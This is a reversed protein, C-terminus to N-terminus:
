FDSSEKESPIIKKLFSSPARLKGNLIRSYLFVCTKRARSISVFCVRCEAALDEPTKAHFDPLSGEEMNLMIVADFELGKSSHRTTVVLRDGVDGLNLISSLPAVSYEERINNELKQLNERESEDFIEFLSFAKEMYEFWNLLSEKYRASEILRRYISKRLPLLEVESIAGRQSCRLFATWTACIEDFSAQFKDLTWQACSQLWFFLETRRFKPRALYVSIGRQACRRRLNRADEQYKTLVAIKGLSVGENRFREVFDLAADYQTEMGGACELTIFEAELEKAAGVAAYRSRQTANTSSLVRESADIIAQPSRYNKTLRFTEVGPLRALENLYEPSAGQFGYISQDPDGVAFIKVNTRTLLTLIIEHSVLGFDQYEDVLIWPFKAEVARRVYEEERLLVASYKLLHLFDLYSRNHLFKAFEVTAEHLLLNKSVKLDVCSIRNKFLNVREADVSKRNFCAFRQNERIFDNFLCDLKKESIVDLAQPVGYKPYLPAFPALIEAWCFSHFTGLFINKRKKCGLDRLRNKFERAAEVNYTLCALGRRPNSTESLIQAVKSTLVRTKGSGPGALVVASGQAALARRQDEDLSISVISRRETM